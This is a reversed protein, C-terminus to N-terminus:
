SFGLVVVVFATNSADNLSKRGVEVAYQNTNNLARVFMSPSCFRLVESTFLIAPINSPQEVKVDSSREFKLVSFTFSIFEINSPQEAKVDSSREFKM